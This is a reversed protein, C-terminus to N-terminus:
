AGVACRGTDAGASAASYHDHDGGRGLGGPDGEGGCRAGVRIPARTAGGAEGVPKALSASPSELEREVGPAIRGANRNSIRATGRQAATTDEHAIEADHHAVEADRHAAEPAQYTLLAAILTVVIVLLDVWREGAKSAAAIVKSAFPVRDALARPSVDNPAQRIADALESLQEATLDM